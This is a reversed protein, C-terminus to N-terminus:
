RLPVASGQTVFPMYIRYDKISFTATVVKNADMTISTPNATGDLDGSWGEFTSNLGATATVPVVTGSVYVHVGVSPEVSGVGTGDKAVTLMYFEGYEYAGVDCPPIRPAGRQDTTIGVQCEGADHSPSGQEIAHILTGFEEALPALQPDVGSQDNTEAFGCTGDSDLNHDNSTVASSGCNDDGNYAIISNKVLISGEGIQIGHGSLATTNSAVTTYTLVTTGRANVLAGGDDSASNASITTNVIALVQYYNGESDHYAGGGEADAYNGVIQGRELTVSGKTVYLGGGYQATNSMIRGGTIATSWGITGAYVGGGYVDAHNGVIEGGQWDFSGTTLYLGGGRNAQNELVKGGRLRIPNSYRSYIGGGGDVTDTGLARNYAILGATQTFAIGSVLYAGGGNESATNSVIQGGSLTIRAGDGNAYLGGGHMESSNEIIASNGTHILAVGNGNVYVGGGGYSEDGVGIARNHTILGDNLLVTGVQAIVGGGRQHAVNYAILSQGTQTFAGYVYIGGGDRSSTNSVIEGGSLTVAGQYIYLGGGSSTATNSFVQVGSCRVHSQGVYMGGGLYASNSVIRGVDLTARAGEVIAAGGGGYAENRALISNEDMTLVGDDGQVRIGGGAGGYLVASNSIVAVNSLTLDTNSSSIGGGGGNPPSGGMITVGSIVVTNAGLSFVRDIGNADIITAGPGQGIITLDDRVNLDGTASAGEHAGPISLEYTGAVALHVVDAGPSDNAAIIAERLSCDSDCAGDASDTLKTVTFDAEPAAVAFTTELCWLLALTLGLGFVCAALLKRTQM